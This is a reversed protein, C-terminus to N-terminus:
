KFNLNAFEGQYIKAVEDYKHAADIINNFTGLYKLKGNIKIQSFICNGNYYVGKYGTSSFTKSNYNNETYTCPRLNNEQNNLGNRDKHDTVKIASMILRHMYIRKMKNNIWIGRVAYYTNRGKIAYWKWQNLWEYNWDDVLTVKNQTLQIEKM